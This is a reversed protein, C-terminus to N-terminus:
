DFIKPNRLNYVLLKCNKEHPCQIYEAVDLDERGDETLIQHFGMRKYAEIVKPEPISFLVLYTAGLYKKIMKVTPLVYDSFIWYGTRLGRKTEIDQSYKDNVLFWNLKIAPYAAIINPINPDFFIAFAKLAFFAVLGNDQTDIVLYIRDDTEWELLPKCSRLFDVGSELRSCRFQNIAKKYTPYNDKTLLVLQVGNDESIIM